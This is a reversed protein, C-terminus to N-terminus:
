YLFGGLLIRNQRWLLGLINMNKKTTSKETTETGLPGIGSGIVSVGSGTQRVGLQKEDVTIALYIFNECM